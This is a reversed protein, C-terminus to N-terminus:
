PVFNRGSPMERSSRMDVAPHPRFCQTVRQFYISLTLSYQIELYMSQSVNSYSSLLYTDDLDNLKRRVSIYLDPTIRAVMIRLREIFM